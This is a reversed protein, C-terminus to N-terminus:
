PLVQGIWPESTAGEVLSAQFLPNLHKMPEPMEQNLKPKYKKFDALAETTNM